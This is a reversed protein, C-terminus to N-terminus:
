QIFECFKREGFMRFADSTKFYKYFKLFSIIFVFPAEFENGPLPFGCIRLHLVSRSCELVSEFVGTTKQEILPSSASFHHRPTLIPSQRPSSPAWWHVDGRKGPSRPNNYRSALRDPPEGSDRKQTALLSARHRELVEFFSADPGMPAFAMLSAPLSFREVGVRGRKTYEVLGSRPLIAGQTALAPHALARACVSGTPAPRLLRMRM